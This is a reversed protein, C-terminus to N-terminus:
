SKSPHRIRYSMQEQKWYKPKLPKRRARHNYMPLLIKVEV